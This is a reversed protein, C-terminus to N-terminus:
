IWANFEELYKDVGGRNVGAILKSDYGYLYSLSIESSISLIFLSAGNLGGFDKSLELMIM